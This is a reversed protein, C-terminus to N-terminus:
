PAGGPALAEVLAQEVEDAAMVGEFKGAIRGGRDVVFVWPETQLGWERTAPVPEERNAERLQPLEYPEIHIFIAGDKYKAYLPDMVTDMVPACTRSKCFAPTAFAVVIPRGTKLADAISVNHMRPRPPYSTDIDEISSVNALTAQRSPPAADGIGPELPKPLVNFRFPLPDMTRGDRTVTIKVGWNGPVDFNVYAVYAGDNGTISKENNSQENVYSLEVPIFRADAETTAHPKAGNLDYFRLHVTADLVKNDDRDMLSMTLRNDGAALVQNTILPFLEGKGLTIVSPFEADSNSSGGCSAALLLAFTAALMLAAFRPGTRIM